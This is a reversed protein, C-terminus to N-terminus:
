QRDLREVVMQAAKDDGVLQELEGQLQGIRDYRANIFDHQSVGSALGYLGQFAAACEADIQQLLLGLESQGQM